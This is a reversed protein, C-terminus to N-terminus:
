AARSKSSTAADRDRCAGGPLAMAYVKPRMRGGFRCAYVKTFEAGFFLVQASYNVWLLVIVLSGAAGYASGFSTKGLYLGILFKGITFLVATVLAGVWVDRWAIYADPIIRFIAAFLLGILGYSVITNAIQLLWGVSPALGVLYKGAGTLFANIVLSTLLLFGLSLILGFSFIKSLLLGRIGPKPRIGWVINLDDKLEFTVALAGFFLFVAGLVTAVTSTSKHAAGSLMLQIFAAGKTGILSQLQAVVEGRAADQGFILGAIAIAIILLPAISFISYYALAAALRPAGDRNWDEFTQKILAWASGFFKM